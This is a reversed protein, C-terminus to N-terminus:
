HGIVLGGLHKQLGLNRYRNRQKRVTYVAMSQEFEEVEAAYQKTQWLDFKSPKLVDERLIEGPHTSKKRNM